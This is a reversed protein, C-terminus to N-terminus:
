GSFSGLVAWTRSRLEVFYEHADCAQCNTVSPPHLDIFWTHLVMARSCRRALYSYNLDARDARHVAVVTEAAHRAARTVGQASGDLVYSAPVCHPINLPTARGTPPDDSITPPCGAYPACARGDVYRAAGTLTPFSCFYYGMQGGCLWGDRYLTIGTGLDVGPTRFARHIEFKAQRCSVPGRVVYIGIRGYPSSTSACQTVTSLPRTESVSPILLALAAASTGLFAFVLRHALRSKRPNSFRSM